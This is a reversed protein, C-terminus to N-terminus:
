EALSALLDEVIDERQDQKNVTVGAREALAILERKTMKRVVDESIEEEGAEKTSARDFPLKDEEVKPKAAGKDDPLEGWADM